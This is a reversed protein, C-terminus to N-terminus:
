NIILKIKKKFTTENECYFLKFNHETYIDYKEITVIKSVLKIDYIYVVYQYLGDIQQIMDIIIGDFCKNNLKDDYCKQLLSCQNQIKKIARMTDNIYNLQSIWKDVFLDSEKNSINM